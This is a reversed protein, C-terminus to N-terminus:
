SSHRVGQGQVAMMLAADWLRGQLQLGGLCPCPAETLRAAHGHRLMCLERGTLIPVSQWHSRRQLPWCPLWAARGLSASRGGGGRAGKDM